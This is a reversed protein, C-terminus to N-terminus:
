HSPRRDFSSGLIHNWFCKASADQAESVAPWFGSRGSPSTYVVGQPVFVVLGVYSFVYNDNDCFTRAEGSVPTLM